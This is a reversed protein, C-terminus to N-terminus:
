DMQDLALGFLEYTFGSIENNLDDLRLHKIKQFKHVFVVSVNM